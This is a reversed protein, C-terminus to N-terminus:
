PQKGEKPPAITPDDMATQLAAEHELGLNSKGIQLLSQALSQDGGRRASRILWEFTWPKNAFKIFREALKNADEERGLAVAAEFYASLDRVARQAEMELMQRRIQAPVNRKMIKAATVQQFRRLAMAVTKDPDSTARMVDDYRRADALMKVVDGLMLQEAFRSLKGAARLKDYLELTKRPERLQRNVTVFMMVDDASAAKAVMREAAKDRREALAKNAPEYREGLEAIIPILTNFRAGRYTRNARAGEDLCWLMHKLAASNEGQYIMAVAVEQRAFPDNGATKAAAELNNEGGDGQIAVAARTMFLEANVYGLLRGAEVGDGNVFLMTPYASVQYRKALAQQQEADVKIAIAREKIWKIVRPDKFTTADLKKCPGCWTTYFDIFVLKEKERAQATAQEFSLDSFLEGAVAVGVIGWVVVAALIGRVMGRMGFERM